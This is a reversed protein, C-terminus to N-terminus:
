EAAEGEVAEDADSEAAEDIEDEQLNGTMQAEILVPLRRFAEQAAAAAAQRIVPGLLYFAENLVALRAPEGLAQALMGRLYATRRIGLQAAEADIQKVMAVPVRVHLAVTEHKRDPRKPM